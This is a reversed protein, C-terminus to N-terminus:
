LRTQLLRQIENLEAHARRRMDRCCDQLFEVNDKAQDPKYPPVPQPAPVEHGEARKVASKFLARWADKTEKDIEDALRRMERLRSTLLRLNNLYRELSLFHRVVDADIDAAEAIQRHIWPHVEPVASELGFMKIEVSGDEPGLEDQLRYVEAMLTRAVKRIQHRRRLWDRVLASVLGAVWGAVSLLVTQIPTMYRKCDASSLNSKWFFLGRRRVPRLDAAPSKAAPLM